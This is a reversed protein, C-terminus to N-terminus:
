KNHFSIFQAGTGANTLMMRLIAMSQVAIISVANHIEYWSILIILVSHSEWLSCCKVMTLDLVSHLIRNIGSDNCPELCIIKECHVTWNQFWELNESWESYTFKFMLIITSTTVCTTAKSNNLKHHVESTDSGNHVLYTSWKFHKCTYQMIYSKKSKKLRNWHCPSFLFTM